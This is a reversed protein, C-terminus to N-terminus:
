MTEYAFKPMRLFPAVAVEDYSPPCMSIDFDDRDPTTARSTADNEVVIELTPETSETVEHALRLTPTENNVPSSLVECSLDSGAVTTANNTGELVARPVEYIPEVEVQVSTTEAVLESTFNEEVEPSLQCNTAVPENHRPPERNPVTGCSISQRPENTTVSVTVNTITTENLTQTSQSVSQQNPPLQQTATNTIPSTQSPASHAQFVDQQNTTHFDTPKIMIFSGAPQNTTDISNSNAPAKSSVMSQADLLVHGEESIPKGIPLLLFSQGNIQMIPRIIGNGGGMVSAPSNLSCGNPNSTLSMTDYSPFYPPLMSLSLQSSSFAGNLSPASPPLLHESQSSEQVSTRTCQSGNAPVNSTGCYHLSAGVFTLIIGILTVVLWMYDWRQFALFVGGVILVCALLGVIYSSCIQSSCTSGSEKKGNGISSVRRDSGERDDARATM